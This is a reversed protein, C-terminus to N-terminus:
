NEVKITLNTQKKIAEEIIELSVEEKSYVADHVEHVFGNFCSKMAERVRREVQTWIFFFLSYKNVGNTIFKPQKKEKGEEKVWNGIMYLEKAYSTAKKVTEPEEKKFYEIFEDILGETEEVYQKFLESKEYVKLSYKKGNDAASLMQKVKNIPKELDKALKERFAKKDDILQKHIPYNEMNVYHSAITQMCASIDYNIFDLNLRTKSKLSTFLSYVRSEQRDSITFSNRIIYRNQKDVGEIYGFLLFVDRPHINLLSKKEIFIDGELGQINDYFEIELSILLSMAEDLYKKALPTLRYKYSNRSKSYSGYREILSSFKYKKDFRQIYDFSNNKSHISSRQLVQNICVILNETCTHINSSSAQAHFFRNRILTIELCLHIVLIATFGDRGIVIRDDFSDNLVPYLGLSLLRKNTSLTKICPKNSGMRGSSTGSHMHEPFTPDKGLSPSQLYKKILNILNSVKDEKDEDWRYITSKDFGFLKLINSQNVKQLNEQLLQIALVIKSILEEKKWKCVPAGSVSKCDAGTNSSVQVGSTSKFNKDPNDRIIKKILKKVDM